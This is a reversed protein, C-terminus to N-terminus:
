CGACPAPGGGFLYSVMYTLDSIDVAGNCDVDAVSLPDPAPGGGFIYEVLFTLDSIDALHGGDSNIDGCVFQLITVSGDVLKVMTTDIYPTSDPRILMSDCGGEPIISVKQYKVCDEGAWQLCMWCITDIYPEYLVGISSGDPRSFNIYDIFEYQIMLNVTRELQDTPVDLVDALIKVLLGDQQPSIGPTVEPPGGWMDAFAAIAIDVGLGSLSRSDVSEWGSILTGTTDHNGILINNTNIHMFDWDGIPITLTSEACTEDPNWTDCRWYTTDIAIASDVQFKILDPRDLQIWLNFGAVVDHYNNLYVSIVTNTENPLATTDGVTVKIDPLQAEAPSVFAFVTLVIVLLALRNVTKTFGSSCVMYEELPLFM